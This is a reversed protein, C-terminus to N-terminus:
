DESGFTNIEEASREAILKRALSVRFITVKRIESGSFSVDDWKSPDPVQDSPFAFESLPSHTNELHSGHYHEVYSITKAVPNKRATVAVACAIRGATERTYGDGILERYYWLALLDDPLFVRPRGATTKPLCELFGGLMAEDLRPRMLDVIRCALATTVKPVIKTM